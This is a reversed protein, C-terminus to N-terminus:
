LQSGAAEVALSSATAAIWHRATVARIDFKTFAALSRAHSCDFVQASLDDFIADTLFTVAHGASVADAATALCGGRGAFGAVVIGRGAGEVVEDFYPNGYCSPGAREFVSDYRGPEFGKIWVSGGDSGSANSFSPRDRVFTVPLGMGRAHALVARCRVLIGATAARPVAGAQTLHQKRLDALVLVQSQFTQRFQRREFELTM